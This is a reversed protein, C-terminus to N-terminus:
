KNSKIKMPIGATVLYVEDALEAVRRNLTGAMDRFKRALANDPVIGMGVENSVVFLSAPCATAASLFSGIETEVDANNMMLNSLWLTLCDVLVVDYKNRMGGIVSPIAIHEEFTMWAPSRQLKHREIREKMEDDLAQATAIFAKPGSIASARKLAFSSKGSRSGGLIFTIMGGM